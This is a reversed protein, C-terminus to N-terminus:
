INKESDINGIKNAVMYWLMSYLIRVSAISNYDIGHGGTM